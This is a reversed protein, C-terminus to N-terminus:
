FEAIVIEVRDNYAEYQLAINIKLIFMTVHLMHQISDVFPINVM